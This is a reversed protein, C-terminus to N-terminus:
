VARRVWLRPRYTGAEAGARETWQESWLLGALILIAGAAVATMATLGSALHALRSRHPQFEPFDEGVRPLPKHLWGEVTQNTEVQAIAQRAQPKESGRILLSGSVTQSGVQQEALPGFRYQAVADWMVSRGRPQLHLYVYALRELLVPDREDLAKAFQAYATRQDEIQKAQVSLLEAEWSLRQLVMLPRILVIGGILLTGGLLFIWGPLGNLWRDLPM